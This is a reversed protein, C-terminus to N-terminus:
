VWRSMVLFVFDWQLKKKQTTVRPVCLLLLMKRLRRCSLISRKCCGVRQAFHRKFPDPHCIRIEMSQPGGMTQSRPKLKRSIHSPHLTAIDEKRALEAEVRIVDLSNLADNIYELRAVQEPHGPPTVHHHCDDHTILATKM